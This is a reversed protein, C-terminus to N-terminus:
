KLETNINNLINSLNTNINNLINSLETYVRSNVDTQQTAIEVQESELNENGVLNTQIVNGTRTIKRKGTLARIFSGFTANVLSSIGRLLGTGAKGGFFNDIAAATELLTKAFSNRFNVM